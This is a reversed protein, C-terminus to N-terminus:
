WGDRKQRWWGCAAWALGAVAAIGLLWPLITQFISVAISLCIVAGLILLCAHWFRQLLSGPSDPTVVPEV